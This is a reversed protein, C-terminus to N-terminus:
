EKRAKQLVKHCPVTYMMEEDRMMLYLLSDTEYGNRMAVCWTLLFDAVGPEHRKFFNPTPFSMLLYEPASPTCDVPSKGSIYNEHTAKCSSVVAATWRHAEQTFWEEATMRPPTSACGSFLIVLPLLLTKTRM